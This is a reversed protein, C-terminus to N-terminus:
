DGMEDIYLINSFLENSSDKVYMVYEDYDVYYKKGWSSVELITIKKISM